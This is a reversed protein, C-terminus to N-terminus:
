FRSKLLCITYKLIYFLTFISVLTLLFYTSLTGSIQTLTDWLVQFGEVNFPKAKFVSLLPYCSFEQTPTTRYLPRRGERFCQQVFLLLSGGEPAPKGELDRNKDNCEHPLFSKLHSSQLVCMYVVEKWIQGQLLYGLIDWIINWKDQPKSISYLKKRKTIKTVVYGM